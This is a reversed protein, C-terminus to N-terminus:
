WRCCRYSNNNNGTSGNGGTVTYLTTNSTSASYTRAVNDVFVNLNTSGDFFVFPVAFSTQTVGESVSYSIRPTNDSLAITM